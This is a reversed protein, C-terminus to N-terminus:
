CFKPISFAQILYMQIREWQTTNKVKEREIHYDNKYGKIDLPESLHGFTEIISNYQCYGGFFFILIDMLIDEVGGVSGLWEMIAFVARSHVITDSKIRFYMEAVLPHHDGVEIEDSSFFTM